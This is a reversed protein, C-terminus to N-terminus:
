VILKNQVCGRRIRSEEPDEEVQCKVCPTAIASRQIVDDGSAVVEGVRERSGQRHLESQLPRIIRELVGGAQMEVGEVQGAIADIEGQM